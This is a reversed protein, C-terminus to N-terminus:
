HGWQESSKTSPPSSELSQPPQSHNPLIQHDIRRTIMITTDDEQPVHIPNLSITSSTRRCSVHTNNTPKLAYQEDQTQLGDNLHSGDSRARNSTHSNGYTSQYYSPPRPNLFKRVQGIFSPASTLNSAIISVHLECNSWMAAICYSWSLDKLNLSLSWARGCACGSAILGLGVLGCVLLKKTRAIQLGRVAIMPLSTCLLDIVINYAITMYIVSTRIKPNWCKGDSPRWYASIPRCESLLIIWPIANIIVIGVMVASLFYKLKRTSKIRLCLLCISVKVLATCPFLIIQTAWGLKNIMQYNALTLFEVHRGNGYGVSLIQLVLRPITFVVAIAMTFDDYGLARKGIRTSWRMCITAISLTTLVSTLVIFTPGLDDDARAM